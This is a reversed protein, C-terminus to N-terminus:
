VTFLIQKLNGPGSNIPLGVRKLVRGFRFLPRDVKLKIEEERM